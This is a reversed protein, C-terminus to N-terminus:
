CRRRLHDIERLTALVQKMRSFQELSYRARRRWNLRSVTGPVNQPLRESWLDELSVMLVRAPGAALWALLRDLVPRGKGGVIKRFARNSRWFSEFPDMDHTNLGAVSSESPTPFPRAPNPKWEYQLVVMRHLRHRRMGKRVEPPVTGLDEGVVECRHRRSERCVVRYLEEAPYRVYVGRSPPMGAPIWFLRHLGMVHDIRLLGAVQMQHALCDAFYRYGEKRIAEPHLPAFGWDQGRTFFTDPPAGATIGRAFLDRYAWADYGAPHVGLPLDLALRVGARRGARAAEEIQEQALWQAYGHYGASDIGEQDARFQAYEELRRNQKLYRRFSQLRVGGSSFFLRSMAELAARKKKM